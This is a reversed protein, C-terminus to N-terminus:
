HPEKGERFIRIMEQTLTLGDDQNPLESRSHWEGVSLEQQDLHITDDGDLDCYFGMLVNGDIGWPQSKYYRINKVRLGVEEMVERAVTQELTEGIETYGAVLAYRTGVRGAYKTLLLQDGNTVGTIIAPSIRPFIMNGCDRCRLMREATDHRVAGGCRGCFRNNRYWNFLHWATLLPYSLVKPVQGMLMRMPIEQWGSLIETDAEGLWLYYNEDQYRFLYAFGEERWRLWNRAPELIDYLAPLAFDEKLLVANGRFCVIRDGDDPSIHRYENELRGHDMDQLM